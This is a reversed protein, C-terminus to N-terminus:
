SNEFAYKILKKCAKTIIGNGSVSEVLWYGVEVKKLEHNITNFSVNGVLENKFYVGCVLSKKEKYEERSKNIFIIFDKESKCKPPWVLWKRLYDYNDQALKVYLPAFSKEVLKLEIDDDVKLKFM